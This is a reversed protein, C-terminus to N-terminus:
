CHICSVEYFQFTEAHLFDSDNPCLLLRCFQFFIKVLQIHLKAIVHRKIKHILDAVKQKRDM